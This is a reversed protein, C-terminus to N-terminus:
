EGYITGGNKIREIIDKRSENLELYERYMDLKYMDFQFSDKCFLTEGTMLIEYRFVDTIADLNILDVDIKLIEELKQKVTFLDKGSVEIDTKFAIDIDSQATQTGRAYSGFLVIANCQLQEKLLEIVKQLKEKMDEM